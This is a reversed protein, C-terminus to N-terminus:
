LELDVVVACHDSVQLPVVRGEARVDSWAPDALVHDLQARPRWSPYTPGSVLRQWRTVRDVVRGPINLDGAVLRPAPLDHSETALARLQAVNWGPVFSLHTGVVTLLHHADVEIVAAIAVRPEDPVLVMGKRGAVVLPMGVPAPGFRRVRWTRVPRRSLLAVGYAAPGTEDLVWGRSSPVGRVTAEFRWTAAGMAAAAESPQDAGGSRPQAVDVEQLVLVDADLSEIGARLDEVRVGGDRVSQGHLINWSAVRLRSVGKVTRL